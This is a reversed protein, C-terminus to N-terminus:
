QRRVSLAVDAADRVQHEAERVIRDLCRLSASTSAAALGAVADLRVELPEGGRFLRRRSLAIQVLEELAEVTGIRAAATALAKRVSSDGETGFASMLAPALSLRSEGGIAAATAIRTAAVPNALAQILVQRAEVTDFHALARIAEARTAEDPHAAAVALAPVSAADGIRAVVAAAHRVQHPKGRTLLPTLLPLADPTASLRDHLFRRAAFSESEAIGAVMVEHGEPGIRQLVSTAKRQDEPHRLAHDLLAELAPRPLVRRAAILRVRRKEADRSAYTLLEDARVLAVAWDHRDAAEVVAGVLRDLVPDDDDTEDLVAPDGDPMGLADESVLEPLPILAIRAGDGGVVDGSDAALSRALLVLAERSAGPDVEIWDVARARMRGRLTTRTDISSREVGSEFRAVGGLEAALETADDAAIALPEEGGPSDRYLAVLCELAIAFTSREVTM